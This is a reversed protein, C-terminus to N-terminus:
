ARHTLRELGGTDDEGLILRRAPYNITIGEAAFRTHIRKVMEHAVRGRQRRNRARLKILFDINSDGFSQFLLLPSYTPDVEERDEIIQGLVEIAVAEVRGLDEEYAIGCIVSVGASPDETDFNTVTSDALTANPIVVLNNDFTRLRTARWGIDDVWGTPGGEIEIFDGVSISGDSLVYSGAFINALIPQAALAVALGGIGLGALLPSIAIGLQDLVLVGGVLLITVRLIRRIIPLTKQRFPDDSRGGAYWTFLTGVVRWLLWVGVFLSGAAWIRELTNTHGELFSVTRLAIYAAQVVILVLVPTQVESVISDDLDTETTHTAFHVIRSMLRSLLWAMLLGGALIAFAIVMEALADQQIDIDPM